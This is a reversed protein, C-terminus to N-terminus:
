APFKVPASDLPKRRLGLTQQFQSLFKQRSHNPGIFIECTGQVFNSNMVVKQNTKEKWSNKRIFDLTSSSIKRSNRGKNELLTRM